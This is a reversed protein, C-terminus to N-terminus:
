VVALILGIVGFVMVAICTILGVSAKPNKGTSKKNSIIGFVFATIGIEYEDLAAFM